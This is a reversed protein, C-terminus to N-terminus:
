TAAVDPRTKRSPRLPLALETGHQEELRPVEREIAVRVIDVMSMRSWYSAALLRALQEDPVMDLRAGGATREAATTM